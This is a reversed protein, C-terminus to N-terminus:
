EFDGNFSGFGALLFIPYFPKSKITNCWHWASTLRGDICSGADMDNDGGSGDFGHRFFDCLIAKVLQEPRAWVEKIYAAQEPDKVITDIAQITRLIPNIIRSVQSYKDIFHMGNPVQNDGMHVKDSGIWTTVEKKTENLVEEMAKFLLPSQQLRHHGQGTNVFTYANDPSLFDEEMLLWLKYMHKTVNKWLTLSQLVFHYQKAHDHTLRSGEEGEHIALALGPEITEPDFYHKLLAIMQGVTDSNDRIFCNCDDISRIILEVQDRDRTSASASYKRILENVLKDKRRLAFNLDSISWHPPRPVPTTALALDPDTLLDECGLEKALTSVTLIKSHPCFGFQEKVTESMADQMICLLKVYGYRMTAPNMIKYRRAIEFIRTVVDCTARIDGAERMKTAEAPGKEATYLAFYLNELEKLIAMSRKADPLEPNDVIDTYESVDCQCSILRQSKRSKMSLRVPIYEICKITEHCLEYSVNSGAREFM